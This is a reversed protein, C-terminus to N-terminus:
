EADPQNPDLDVNFDQLQEGEGNDSMLVKVRMEAQELTKQCQNAIKMGQEFENISNELSLEGEEMRAVIKELEELQQEFNDTVTDTTKTMKNNIKLQKGLTLM